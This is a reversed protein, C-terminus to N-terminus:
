TRRIITVILNILVNVDINAVRYIIKNYNIFNITNAVREIENDSKIIVSNNNVRTINIVRIIIVRRAISKNLRNILTIYFVYFVKIIITM